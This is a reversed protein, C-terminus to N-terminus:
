QGPIFPFFVFVFVSYYAFLQFFFFVCLLSPLPSQTGSLRPPASYIFLGSFAPVQGAVKSLPFSTVTATTPFAGGSIPPHASGWAFQLYVLWSSLAPTTGGVWHAQLLSPTWYCSFHPM